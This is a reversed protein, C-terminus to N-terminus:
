HQAGTQEGHSVAQTEREYLYQFWYIVNFLFFAFPFAMRSVRDIPSDSAMAQVADEKMKRVAGPKHIKGILNSVAAENTFFFKWVGLLTNLGGDIFGDRMKSYKSKSCDEVPADQHSDSSESDDDENSEIFDDVSFDDDDNSKHSIQEIVNKGRKKSVPKSNTLPGLHKSMDKMNDKSPNGDGTTKKNGPRKFGGLRQKLKNKFMNRAKRIRYAKRIQKLVYRPKTVTSYNVAAFEILSAFCFFFCGTIFYDMATAYGVRPISQRESISLTVLSLVSMLGFVCRAPTAEKNIWFSM